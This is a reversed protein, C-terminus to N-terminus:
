MEGGFLKESMQSSGTWASTYTANTSTEHASKEFVHISTDPEEERSTALCSRSWCIINLPCRSEDSNCTRSMYMGVAAANPPMHMPTRVITASKKPAIPEPVPIRKATVIM